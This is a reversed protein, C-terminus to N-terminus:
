SQEDREEIRGRDELVSETYYAFSLVVRVYLGEKWKTGEEM